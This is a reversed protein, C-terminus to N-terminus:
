CSLISGEQSPAVDRLLECQATTAGARYCGRLAAPASSFSGSGGKRVRDDTPENKGSTPRPWCRGGGPRHATAAFSLHGCVPRGVSQLCAERVLM